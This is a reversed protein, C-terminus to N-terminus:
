QAGNTLGGLVWGALAEICCYFLDWIIPCPKFTASLAMVARLMLELQRYITEKQTRVDALSQRKSYFRTVVHCANKTFWLVCGEKRRTETIVKNDSFPTVSSQHGPSYCKATTFTWVWLSCPQSLLKGSLLGTDSVQAQGRNSATGYTCLLPDAQGCQILFFLRFM